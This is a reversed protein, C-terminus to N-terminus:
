KVVYIRCIYIVVIYLSMKIKKKMIKEKIEAVNKTPPQERETLPRKVEMRKNWNEPPLWSYFLSFEIREVVYLGLLLIIYVGFNPLSPNLVLFISSLIQNLPAPFPNM